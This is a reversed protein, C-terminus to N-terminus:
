KLARLVESASKNTFFAKNSVSIYTSSDPAPTRLSPPPAAMGPVHVRIRANKDLLVSFFAALGGPAPAFDTYNAVTGNVVEVEAGTFGFTEQNVQPGLLGRNLSEERSRQSSHTRSLTASPRVRSGGPAPVM